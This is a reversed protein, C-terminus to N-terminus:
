GPPPPMGGPTTSQAQAVSKTASVLCFALLIRIPVTRKMHRCVM